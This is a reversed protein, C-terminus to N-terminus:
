ATMSAKLLDETVKHLKIHGQPTTRAAMSARLLLRLFLQLSFPYRVRMVGPARWQQACPIFPVGKNKPAGWRFGHGQAKKGHQLDLRGREIGPHSGSQAWPGLGVAIAKCAGVVKTRSQMGGPPICCQASGGLGVAIAVNERIGVLAAAM